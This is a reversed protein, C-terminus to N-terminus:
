QIVGHAAASPPNKGGARAAAPVRARLRWLASMQANSAAAKARWGRWGLHWRFARAGRQNYDLAVVLDSTNLGKAKTVKM